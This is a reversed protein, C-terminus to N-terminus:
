FDYGGYDQYKGIVRFLRKCIYPRKWHSLLRPSYKGQAKELSSEGLSSVPHPGGLFAGLVALPKAELYGLRAREDKRHKFERNKSAM